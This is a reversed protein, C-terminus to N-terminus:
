VTTALFFAAVLLQIKKSGSTGFHKPGCLTHSWVKEIIYRRLKALKNFNLKRNQLSFCVLERFIRLHPLRFLNVPFLNPGLQSRQVSYPTRQSLYIKAMNWAVGWQGMQCLFPPIHSGKPSKQLVQPETNVCFPTWCKCWHACVLAFQVM